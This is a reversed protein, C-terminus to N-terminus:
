STRNAPRETDIWHDILTRIFAIENPILGRVIAKAEGHDFGCEISYDYAKLTEDKMDKKAMKAIAEGTWDSM